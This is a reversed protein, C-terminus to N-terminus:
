DHGLSGFGSTKLSALRTPHVLPLPLFRPVPPTLTPAAWGPCGAPSVPAVDLGLCCCFLSLFTVCDRRSPLPLGLAVHRLGPSLVSCCCSPFVTLAAHPGGLGKPDEWPRLLPHDEGVRGRVAAGFGFLRPLSAVDHMMLAWFRMVVYAPVGGRDHAESGEHMIKGGQRTQSQLPM